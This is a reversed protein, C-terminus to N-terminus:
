PKAPLRSRPRRRAANGAGRSQTMDSLDFSYSDFKIVSVNGDPTKRHVEGDKMLLSKGSQDVAGEKAYYILDFGPDRSDVM